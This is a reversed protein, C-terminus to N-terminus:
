VSRHTTVIVASTNSQLWYAVYGYAKKQGYKYGGISVGSMTNGDITIFSAGSLTINGIQTGHPSIGWCVVSTSCVTSNAISNRNMSFFSGFVLIVNEYQELYVVSATSWTGGLTTNVLLNSNILLSSNYSLMFNSMNASVYIANLLLREVYNLASITNHIVSISSSKCLSFPDRGSSTIMIAFLFQQGAKQNIGTLYFTNGEIVISSNPPLSGIFVLVTDQGFAMDRVTIHLRGMTPALTASPGLLEIGNSENAQVSGGVMLLSASFASNLFVANVSVFSNFVCGIAAYSGGKPGLNFPTTVSGCDPWMPLATPTPTSESGTPVLSCHCVTFLFASLLLFFGAVM